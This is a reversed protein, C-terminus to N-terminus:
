PTGGRREVFANWRVWFRDIDPLVARLEKHVRMVADLPPESQRLLERARLIAREAEVSGRDTALDFAESTLWAGATGRPTYSRRHLRAQPPDGELDLDFWADQEPDFWAEASALVLPSHTTVILQFEIDKQLEDGIKLLSPLISRQWRPHLHSEVEDFLMIMRPSAEEGSMEAALRHESWTWVLMYALACMRRIGSSAHLIPVPGAYSTNISPISRSDKISLRMLPGPEIAGDSDQGHPSLARLVSAMIRANEDDKAGIWASWDYLLGNCVPITRSGLHGVHSGIGDWVEADTFVYAPWRGHIDTDGQGKWYNRAPDWVSFSGDAHAYVVLGPLWPRNPASLWADNEQSYSWQTQVSFETQSRIRGHGICQIFASKNRDGPQAPFGSTMSGNVEQPWSRTLAWWAVDLLFSKGLGNDGTLLSLRSAPEFRMGFAPGVNELELSEVRIVVVGSRRYRREQDLFDNFRNKLTLLGEVKYDSPFIEHEDPLDGQYEWVHRRRASDIAYVATKVRSLVGVEDLDEVSVAEQREAAQKQLLKCLEDWTQILLDVTAYLKKSPAEQGLEYTERAHEDLDRIQDIRIQEM